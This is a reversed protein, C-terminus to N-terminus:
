TCLIKLTRWLEEKNVFIDIKISNTPLTRMRIFDRAYGEPRAVEVTVPGIISEVEVKM